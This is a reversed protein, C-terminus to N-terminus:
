PLRTQSPRASSRRAPRRSHSTPARRWAPCAASTRAEELPIQYQVCPAFFASGTAPVAGNVYKHRPNPWRAAIFDFVLRSRRPRPATLLRPTTPPSPCWRRRSREGPARFTTKEDQASLRQPASTRRAAPRSSHPSRPAQAPCTEPTLLACAALRDCWYGGRARRLHLRRRRRGDGARRRGLPGRAVAAGEGIGSSLFRM